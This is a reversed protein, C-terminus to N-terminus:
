PRCNIRVFLNTKTKGDTYPIIGNMTSFIDWFAPGNVKMSITRKNTQSSVKGDKIAVLKGAKTDDILSEFIEKVKNFNVSSHVNNVELKIPLREFHLGSKGSPSPLLTEKLIDHPECLKIFDIMAEKEGVTTLQAFLLDKSSRFSIPGFQALQAYAMIKDQIVEASHAKMLSFTATKARVDRETRGQERVAEKLHQRITSLNSAKELNTTQEHIADLISESAM